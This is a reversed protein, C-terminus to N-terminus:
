QANSTDTHPVGEKIITQIGPYTNAYTALTAYSQMQLSSELGLLSGAIHETKPRDFPLKVLRGAVARGMYGARMATTVYGIYEIARFRDGLVADNKSLIAWVIDSLEEGEYKGLLDEAIMRFAQEERLEDAKTKSPLAIDSEIAEGWDHTAATLIIKRTDDDGMAERLCFRAAIKQTHPMHLLNNVDDGLMDTWIANEVDVPKFDGFRIEENLTRGYESASFLSHLEEPSRV